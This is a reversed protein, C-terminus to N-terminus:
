VTDADLDMLVGDLVFAPVTVTLSQPEEGDPSAWRVIRVATEENEDLPLRLFEIYNGDADFESTIKLEPFHHALHQMIFGRADREYAHVAQIADLYEQYTQVTM